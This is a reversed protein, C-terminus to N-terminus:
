ESEKVLAEAISAEVDNLLARLYARKTEVDGVTCGALEAPAVRGLLEDDSTLEEAVGLALGLLHPQGRHETVDIPRVLGEDLFEVSIADTSRALEEGAAQLLEDDSLREASRTAGKLLVRLMWRPEPSTGAPEVRERLVHATERALSSADNVDHLDHLEITQWRAPAVARFEAVIEGTAPVEVLLAGRPGSEGFYRGILPGLASPSPM